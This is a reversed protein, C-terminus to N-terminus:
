YRAVRGRDAHPSVHVGAIVCHHFVNLFTCPPSFAGASKGKKVKERTKRQGRPCADPTCLPPISLAPGPRHKEAAGLTGSLLFLSPALYPLLYSPSSPVSPLNWWLSLAPLFSRGKERSHGQRWVHHDDPGMEGRTWKRCSAEVVHVDLYTCATSSSCACFVSSSM